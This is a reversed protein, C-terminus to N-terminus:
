CQCSTSTYTKSRFYSLTEASLKKENPKIVIIFPESEAFKFISETLLITKSELHGVDTNILYGIRGM